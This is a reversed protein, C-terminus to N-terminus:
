HVTELAPCLNRSHTQVHSRNWSNGTSRAAGELFNRHWLEFILLHWIEWARDRTGQRHEQIRREIEARNFYGRQITRPELLIQLLPPMPEKRFWEVLPMSFGQKPRYIVHGPVGLRQAMKKLIYKKQGFRVKWRPSLRAAWEAFCHDLLPARVELSTAM